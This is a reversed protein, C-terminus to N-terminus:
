KQFYGHELVVVMARLNAPDVLVNGILRASKLRPTYVLPPV